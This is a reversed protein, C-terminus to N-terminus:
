ARLWGLGGFCSGQVGTRHVHPQRHTDVHHPITQAEIQPVVVVVNM